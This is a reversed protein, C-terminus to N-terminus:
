ITKIGEQILDNLQNFEDPIAESLRSAAIVLIWKELEEKSFSKQLEFYRKLYAERLSKRHQEYNYPSIDAPSHIKAINLLVLTSAVDALPNGNCAAGWDIICPGNNSRLIQGPHYDMHLLRDHEPMKSIVDAIYRKQNPPLNTKEINRSLRNRVPSLDKATFGHIAFHCEALLNGIKEGKDPSSVFEELLSNGSIKEYIIGRRNEIEIIECVKAIPINHKQISKNIKFESEIWDRPCWSFFLKLVNDTGWLYVEATRGVGILSKTNIEKNM